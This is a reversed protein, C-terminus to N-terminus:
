KKAEIMAEDDESAEEIDFCSLDGCTVYEYVQKNALVAQQKDKPELAPQLAVYSEQFPLFTSLKTLSYLKPPDFLRCVIFNEM